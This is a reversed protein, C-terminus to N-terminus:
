LPPPRRRRLADGPADTRAGGAPDPHRTHPQFVVVFPPEDPRIARVYREGPLALSLDMTPFELPTLELGVPALDRLVHAALTATSVYYHSAFAAMREVPPPPSLDIRKWLEALLHKALINGSGPFGFLAVRKRYAPLRLAHALVVPHLLRRGGGSIERVLRASRLYPDTSVSGGMRNVISSAVLAPLPAKRELQRCFEPNTWVPVRAAGLAELVSRLCTSAPPYDPHAEPYDDVVFAVRIGADRCMELIPLTYYGLGYLGVEGPGAGSPPAHPGEADAPQGDGLRRPFALVNEM